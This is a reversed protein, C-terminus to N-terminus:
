RWENGSYNFEYDSDGPTVFVSLEEKTFNTVIDREAMRLWLNKHLINRLIDISATALMAAVKTKRSIHGLAKLIKAFFSVDNIDVRYDVLLLCNVGKLIIQRVVFFPVNNGNYNKVQYV